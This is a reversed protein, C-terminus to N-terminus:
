LPLRSLCSGWSPYTTYSDPSTVLVSQTQWQGSEEKWPRGPGTPATPSGPGGPGEPRTTLQTLSVM